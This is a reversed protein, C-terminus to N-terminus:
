LGYFGALPIRAKINKYAVINKNNLGEVIFKKPIQAKFFHINRLTIFTLASSNGVPTQEDRFMNSFRYKQMM